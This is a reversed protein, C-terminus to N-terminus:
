NLNYGGQGGGTWKEIGDYIQCGCLRLQFIVYACSM